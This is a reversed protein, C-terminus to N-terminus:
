KDKEREADAYRFLGAQLNRLPKLLRDVTFAKVAYQLPMWLTMRALCALEAGQQWDPNIQQFFAIKPNTQLLHDSIPAIGAKLHCAESVPMIVGKEADYEDPYLLSYFSRLLEQKEPPMPRDFRPYYEAFNNAMMLYTKYGKTILLWYLPTLPRRLKKMLLYRLFAKGLTRQGWYDKEIVTDGSFIGHVIKGRHRLRVLVLTSFGRIQETDDLLLIVDDKKALDKLFQERSVEDYYCQMLAFMQAKDSEKLSAIAVTRARLKRNQPATKSM